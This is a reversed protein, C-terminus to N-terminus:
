PSAGDIFRAIEAVPVRVGRKGIKVTRIKGANVLCWLQSRGIALVQCTQKITVMRAGDPLNATPEMYVNYFM